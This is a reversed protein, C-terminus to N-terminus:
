EGVEYGQNRGAFSGLLRGGFKEALDTVAHIMSTRTGIVYVLPGLSSLGVAFDTTEDVRRVFHRVSIAQNRLERAKFGTLQLEGLSVKLLKLDGTLVAPVVGHYLAAMSRLVERPPIPTNKRFFEVEAESGLRRGNLLFLHFRWDSPINLRCVVPPVRFSTRRSSPAFKLIRSAPHGCDVVFGGWYFANVGVGSTGGRGSLKQIVERGLNLGLALDIAQVVGLVSASKSGLGVHQPLLNRLRVTFNPLGRLRRIREIAQRIDRRGEVDLSEIGIIQMERGGVVEVEIPLGDIYFGAGGHDRHTAHGLDLLGIHLRPFSRLTLM